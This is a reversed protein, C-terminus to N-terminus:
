CMGVPVHSKRRYFAKLDAETYLYTFRRQNSMILNHLDGYNVEHVKKGHPLIAEVTDLESGSNQKRYRSIFTLLFKSWEAARPRFPTESLEFSLKMQLFKKAFGVITSGVARELEAATYAIKSIVSQPILKACLDQSLKEIKPRVSREYREEMSKDPSVNFYSIHTEALSGDLIMIFQCRFYHYAHDQLQILATRFHTRKGKDSVYAFPDEEDEAYTPLDESGYPDELWMSPIDGTIPIAVNRTLGTAESLTEALQKNERHLTWLACDMFARTQDEYIIKFTELHTQENLLEKERQEVVEICPEKYKLDFQNEQRIYQSNIIVSVQNTTPNVM